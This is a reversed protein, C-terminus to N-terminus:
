RKFTEPHWRRYGDREAIKRSKPCEWGAHPGWSYGCIFCMYSSDLDTVQTGPPQGFKAPGVAGTLIIAVRRAYIERKTLRGHTM